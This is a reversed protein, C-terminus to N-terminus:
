PLFSNAFMGMMYFRFLQGLPARVGKARLLIRWREASLLQTGAYYLWAFMVFGPSLRAISAGIARWDCLWLAGGLLALSLAIRLLLRASRATLSRERWRGGMEGRDGLTGSQRDPACLSLRWARSLFRRLCPCPRGHCAREFATVRVM